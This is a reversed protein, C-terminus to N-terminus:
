GEIKEEEKFMNLKLCVNSFVEDFVMSQNSTKRWVDMNAVRIVLEGEKKLLQALFESVLWYECVEIKDGFLNYLENTSLFEEFLPTLDYTIDSTIFGNKIYRNAISNCDIM